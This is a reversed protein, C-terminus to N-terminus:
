TDLDSSTVPQEPLKRGLQLSCAIKGAFRALRSSVTCLLM